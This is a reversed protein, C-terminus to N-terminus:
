TFRQGASLRHGALFERTTTPRRGEAQIQVIGLPTSGTAVQLRDGAAELIMGPPGSASMDTLVTRLILYRRGDLSTSALPWPRLGRVHNHIAVATQKWDILGEHKQLRSAYTALRHDQPTEHVDGIALRDITEVLLDAGLTALDAAVADSTEDPGIPRTRTALMSGADLERVVRMITVGTVTEGAVVAREIPAAGRYKPLLSAHVNILGHPPLALVVDPLIRGYAVVVGLDPGLSRVQDLFASDKLKEPQLVPLRHAIALQKVPGETTRQGRGRPRDPQTVVGVVQHASSLLADLSAVAFAPTGFFIIRV